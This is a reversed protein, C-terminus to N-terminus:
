IIPTDRYDLIKLKVNTAPNSRSVMHRIDAFHNIIERHWGTWIFAIRQNSQPASLLTSPAISLQQPM